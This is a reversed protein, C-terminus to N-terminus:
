QGALAPAPAAPDTPPVANLYPTLDLKGYLLPIVTASAAQVPEKGPTEPSAGPVSDPTGPAMPTSDAAPAPALASPAVALEEETVAPPPGSLLSNNDYTGATAAPLDTEPAAPPLTLMEVPSQGMQRTDHALAIEPKPVEVMGGEESTPLDLSTTDAPDLHSTGSLNSHVNSAVATSDPPPTAEGSNLSAPVDSEIEWQNAYKGNKFLSCSSLGAALAGLAVLRSLHQISAKM